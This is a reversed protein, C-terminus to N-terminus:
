NTPIVIDQEILNIMVGDRDYFTMERQIPRSKYTLMVPSCVIEAELKLLREYVQDFNPTVFVLCTEGISVRGVQKKIKPLQADRYEFFGIMGYDTRNARVVRFRCPGQAPIGVLSFVAKDEEGTMAGELWLEYGFLIEYFSSSVEISEVFIATRKLPSVSSTSPFAHIERSQM